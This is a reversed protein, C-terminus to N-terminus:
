KLSFPIQKLIGDLEWPRRMFNIIFLWIELLQAFRMADCSVLKFCVQSSQTWSLKSCLAKIAPNLTIWALGRRWDSCVKICQWSVSEEAHVIYYRSSLQESQWPCESQICLKRLISIIQCWVHASAFSMGLSWRERKRRLRWWLFRLQDIGTRRMWM